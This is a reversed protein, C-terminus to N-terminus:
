EAATELWAYATAMDHFVRSAVDAREAALRTMQLHQLAEECVIAVRGGASAVRVLMEGLAEQTRPGAVTPADRMDFVIAHIGNSAVEVVSAAFEVAMAAGTASDIEPRRWVRAVARGHEVDITFNDGTTVIV